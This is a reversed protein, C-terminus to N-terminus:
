FDVVDDGDLAALGYHLAAAATRREEESESELLPLLERFFAGRISIDNKLTETDLLPATDDRVELYYLGLASASLVNPSLRAEPSIRGTLKIRVLADAGLGAQAASTKVRELLEADSSVGTVDVTLREYHRRCMSRSAFSAALRGNEKKLEGVIM